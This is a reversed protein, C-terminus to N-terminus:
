FAYQLGLNVGLSEYDDRGLGDYNVRGSLILGNDLAYAAGFNIRTRGGEFSSVADEDFGDGSVSANLYAVGGTLTLDGNPMAFGRAFDLGVALDTMELTQEPIDNDNSDVFAEQTDKYYTAQLSPILTLDGYALEGAVKVNALTRASTFEEENGDLTVTNEATGFLARAEFYLPQDPLKAVAYPGVLYGTGSTATEGQDQEIQDFQLMVGAIADPGLQMHGGFAGFFYSSEVEDYTTWNGQLQAWVNRQGNTALDFTGNGQTAQLNFAGFGTGSLLPILDPQAAMLLAGRTQSLEQVEAQVEAVTPGFAPIQFPVAATANGASDRFTITAIASEPVLNNLIFSSTGDRGVPIDAYTTGYYSVDFSSDPESTITVRASGEDVRTISVNDASPEAPPKRDTPAVVTVEITQQVTVQGDSVFATFRLTKDSGNLALDPFTIRTAQQTTGNSWQYTLDDGDADSANISYAQTSGAPVSLPGTISNIVPAANLSNNELTGRGVKHEVIQGNLTYRFGIYDDDAFSASDAGNQEFNTIDNPSVNLCGAVLDPTISDRSALQGNEWLSGGPFQNIDLTSLGVSASETAADVYRSLFCFSSDPGFRAATNINDSVDFAQAPNALTLASLAAAVAVKPLFKPM